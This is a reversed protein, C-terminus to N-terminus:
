AATKDNAMGGKMMSKIARRTIANSIATRPDPIRSGFILAPAIGILWVALGIVGLLIVGILVVPISLYDKRSM